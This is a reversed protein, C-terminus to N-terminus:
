AIRNRYYWYSWHSLSSPQYKNKNKYYCQDEEHFAVPKRVDDYAFKIPSTGGASRM